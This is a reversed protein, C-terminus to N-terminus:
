IQIQNNELVKKQLVKIENVNKKKKKSLSNRWNELLKWFIGGIYSTIRDWNDNLFYKLSLSPCYLICKIHSPYVLSSREEDWFWAQKYQYIMAKDDNILSVM